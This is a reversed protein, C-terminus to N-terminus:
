GPNGACERYASLAANRCSGWLAQGAAVAQQCAAMSQQLTQSCASNPNPQPSGAQGPGTAGAFGPAAASANGGANGANGGSDDAGAGSADKTLASFVWDSYHTKGDFAKDALPFNATKFPSGDSLSYVGTIGGDPAKVLGWKDSGTIPDAYPRRLYRVTNPFRPDELMEQVTKPYRQQGNVSVSYFGQIAQRYQDGVFLLQKEKERVAVTHWVNGMAALGVGLAAVVFLLWLLAFGRERNLRTM